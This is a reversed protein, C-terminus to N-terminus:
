RGTIQRFRRITPFRSSRRKQTGGQPLARRINTPSRGRNAPFSPFPRPSPGKKCPENRLIGEQCDAPRRDHRQRDERSDALNELEEGACDTDGAGFPALPTGHQCDNKEMRPENRPAVIPSGRGNIPGNTAIIRQEPTPARTPPPSQLATSPVFRRRPLEPHAPRAKQPRIRPVTDFIRIPEIITATANPAISRYDAPLPRHRDKGPPPRAPKDPNRAARTGGARTM